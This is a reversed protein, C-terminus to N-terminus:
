IHRGSVQCTAGPRVPGRGWAHGKPGGQLAHSLLQGNNAQIHETNDCRPQAANSSALPARREGPMGQLAGM